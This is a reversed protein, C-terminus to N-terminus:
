FLLVSMKRRYQNVLGRDELLDFAALLGKQAAGNNYNKDTKLVHLYADLGQESQGARIRAAAIELWLSLEDPNVELASELESLDMNGHEALLCESELHKVEDSLRLNPSLANLLLRAKETQGALISAHILALKTKPNEEDILLGQELQQVAEDFRKEDIFKEAQIRYADSPQEMHQQIKERIVMEPQVGMFEDVVEGDKFLKLTPLSRIGFQGALRQEEDTDVKALKFRGDFEEILKQLIPLIMKCPGCWDAWFDVLVPTKYSQEIVLTQFDTETVTYIDSNDSM